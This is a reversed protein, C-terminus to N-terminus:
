RLAAVRGHEGASWGAPIGHPFSLAHYGEHGFPTWTLGGDSSVDAGAPGVVVLGHGGSGPLFAVASRFGRLTGSVWTRGGDDTRAFHRGGEREQRYDGGVAVGHRADNFALSFIGASSQGAVIPADAAQWTSGGDISRFVRARAAGGTGFWAHATGQVTLCTGSAAFAGEGDLAPPLQEPPVRNWHAGGDTTRIVTFRGGVPDGLALGHAADWFALADYFGQPDPNVFQLVWSRGGDHTKYIRSQDGSGISLAYATETDVAEIDRFDLAEAGSPAVGRWTAGGDTTRVITGQRGSAWAVRANVASVGRLRETTGSAQPTWTVSAASLCVGAACAIGAVRTTM